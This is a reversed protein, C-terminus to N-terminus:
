PKSIQYLCQNHCTTNHLVSEADEYKDNGKNTWKKKRELLVKDFIEWSSSGRPNQFKTFVNPIVQQIMYSLILKRM